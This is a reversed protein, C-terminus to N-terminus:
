RMDRYVDQLTTYKEKLEDISKRYRKQSVKCMVVDNDNGSLLKRQMYNRLSNSTTNLDKIKNFKSRLEKLTCFQVSYIESFSMYVKFMKNSPTIGIYKIHKESFEYDFDHLEKFCDYLNAINPSTKTGLNLTMFNFAEFGLRSLEVVRKDCVDISEIKNSNGLKSFDYICHQWPFIVVCKEIDVRLREDKYIIGLKIALKSLENIGFDEDKRLIALKTLINQSKEKFINLLNNIYDLSSFEFKSNVRVLNEIVIGQKIYRVLSLLSVKEVGNDDTDLILYNNYDKSIGTCYFM